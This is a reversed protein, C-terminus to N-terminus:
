SQTDKDNPCRFPVHQAMAEIDQAIVHRERVLFEAVASRFRKDPIWHASFTRVPEYGRQVKHPGQTGAEVRALKHAIAYDIAQYYCAEFHLFPFDAAAGWNRGFLADAGRLNLAGAITKGDRTALMMVVQDGLETGLRGFFERTLYPYGWKRDYTDVYFKFFADWDRSKMEGGHVPRVEIGSARVQEREKRIQKRKRSALAGLFDDFTGYGRNFWHYQCGHRLLLGAEEALAAEEPAIFTIHVSSVEIARAVEVLGSVLALRHRKQQPGPPALLRPGPVPTFPVAVQLKPYYRGGAREYADAWGHDFVYEGYSHGKVYAPAAALLRGASDELLLHQALWGSKASVCGTEELLRLFAHSLFPNDGGACRDWAAADVAGIKDITRVTLAEAGDPM